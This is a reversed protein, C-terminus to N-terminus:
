RRRRKLAADALYDLDPKDESGSQEAMFKDLVSRKVRRARHPGVAALRGSRIWRNVTQVEIKILQAVEEPTLYTDAGNPLSTMQVAARLTSLETLVAQLRRELAEDLLREIIADISGPATM